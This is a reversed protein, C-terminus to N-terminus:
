SCIKRSGCGPSKHSPQNEDNPNSFSVIDVLKEKPLLQALGVGLLSKGTGPEGILLIHRRQRAAKKVVEVAQEQGIVQDIIGKKTAIEETSKFKLM